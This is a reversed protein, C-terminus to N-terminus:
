LKGLGKGLIVQNVDAPLQNWLQITRNVFSYKGFDMKQKRSKSERDHDVRLHLSYQLM